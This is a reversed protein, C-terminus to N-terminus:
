HVFAGNWYGGSCWYYQVYGDNYFVVRGGGDMCVYASVYVEAADRTEAAAPATGSFLLAASLAVTSGLAALKGLM